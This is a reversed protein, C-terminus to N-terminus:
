PTLRLKRWKKPTVDFALRFKKIFYSSEGFGTRIAIEDVNLRSSQLLHKAERLRASLIERGLSHGFRRACAKDLRSRSIGLGDAVQEAGFPRSLNDRIFLLVKHILPDDDAVTNTSRRITIGDPPILIPSRPPPEGNMLRSLLEAASYGGQLFNQRICSIPIPQHDTILPDDGISLIAVEDPVDVGATLCIHLLRVAESESYALVAIPKSASRIDGAIDADRDHVWKEPKFGLSESFGSFRLEHVHTWGTSFWAAHRFGCSAFHSGAILGIRRHDSVVRPLRINPHEITLDVVPVGKARMRRIYDLIREDSRLTVLIGDYDISPMQGGLRDHITLQWGREGAFRSIGELRLHSVPTIMALVRMMAKAEDRRTTM